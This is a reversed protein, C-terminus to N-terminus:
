TCRKLLETIDNVLERVTPEDWVPSGEDGDEEKDSDDIIELPHPYKCSAMFKAVESPYENEVEKRYKCTEYLELLQQAKPTVASAWLSEPESRDHIYALHTIINAIIDLRGNQTPAVGTYGAKKAIKALQDIVEERIYLKTEKRGSAIRKARKNRSRTPEDLPEAKKSKNSRRISGRPIIQRSRKIRM